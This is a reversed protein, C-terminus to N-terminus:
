RSTVHRSPRHAREALVRSLWRARAESAAGCAKSCSWAASAVNCSIDGSLVATAVPKAAFSASSMASAKPSGRLQTCTSRASDPEGVISMWIAAPPKAESTKARRPQRRPAAPAFTHINALM